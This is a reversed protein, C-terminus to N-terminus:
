SNIDKIDKDKSISNIKLKEDLKSINIMKQNIEKELSEIKENEEHKESNEDKSNLIQNLEKQNQSQHTLRSMLINDRGSTLLAQQQRVTNLQQLGSELQQQGTLLQQRGSALQQRSSSPQCLHVLNFQKSDILVDPTVDCDKIYIPKQWNMPNGDTQAFGNSSEIERSGLERSQIEQSGHFPYIAGDGYATKILSNAQSIM